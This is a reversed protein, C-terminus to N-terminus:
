DRREASWRGSCAGASGAGRWVGAGSTQSLRGSGNAHQDGIALRVRVHGNAGVRGYASGDYIVVGNVIDLGIRYSRDCAGRNTELLVSWRGDLAGVRASEHTRPRATATSMSAAVVAIMGIARLVKGRCREVERPGSVPSRGRTSRSVGQDAPRFMVRM